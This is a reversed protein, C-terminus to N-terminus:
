KREPPYRRFIGNAIEWDGCQIAYEAIQNLLGRSVESVHPLRRIEEALKVGVAAIKQLEAAEPLRDTARCVLALENRSQWGLPHLKIAQRLAQEATEMDGALRSYKGLWLWLVPDVISEANVSALLDEASNMDGEEIAAQLLVDLLPSSQPLENHLQKAAILASAQKAKLSESPSTLFLARTNRAVHVAHAVQLDVNEEASDLWRATIQDGDSFSLEELSVLYVYHDPQDSRLEIAASIDELLRSRQFTMAYFFIRTRRADAFREDIELLQDALSMAELPKNLYQFNVKMLAAAADFGRPGDLPIKEYANAAESHENLHSRGEGLLFWPLPDGPDVNAWQSATEVVKTWNGSKEAKRCIERFRDVTESLQLQRYVVAAAIMGVVVIASLWKAKGPKIM